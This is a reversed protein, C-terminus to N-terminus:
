EEEPAPHILKKLREMRVAVCDDVIGAPNLSLLLQELMIQADALEGALDGEFYPRDNVLKSLIAILESFEEIAVLIQANLGFTELAQKYVTNREERNM